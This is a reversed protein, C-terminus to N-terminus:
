FKREPFLLGGELGGEEVSAKKGFRRGPFLLEGELREGQFCFSEKLDEEKSVSARRGFNSGLGPLEAEFRGIM